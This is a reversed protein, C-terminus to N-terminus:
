GEDGNFYNVAEFDLWLWLPILLFFQVHRNQHLVYLDFCSIWVAQQFSFFVTDYVDGSEEHLLPRSKTGETTIRKALAELPVDLWVSIGKHM